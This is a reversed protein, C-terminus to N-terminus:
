SGKMIPPQEVVVVAIGEAKERVTNRSVDRAIEEFPGM